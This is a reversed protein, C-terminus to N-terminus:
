ENDYIPIKVKVITGKGPVSIFEAVGDLLKARSSINKIGNSDSKESPIFGVGNDIIEIQLHKKTYYLKIQIQTAEAHKIINALSEQVIRFLFVDKEQKLFISDGIITLKFDFQDSKNLQSIENEITKILGNNAIFESSMSRSLDRLDNLSDSLIQVIENMMSNEEITSNNVLNNLHLKALSLKQGINDHIERSIFQFTSEQVQIQAKLKDNEHIVKLNTIRQNHQIQKKQYLYILFAIFLVLSMLIFVVLLIFILLSSKM